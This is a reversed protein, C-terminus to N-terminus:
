STFLNLEALEDESFVEETVAVKPVVQAALDGRLLQVETFAHVPLGEAAFHHPAEHGDELGAVGAHELHM